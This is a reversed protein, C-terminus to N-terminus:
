ADNNTGSEVYKALKELAMKWGLENDAPAVGPPVGEHVALVETGATTDLLTYTVTMQGQMSPDTTEFELAESVQVDTALKLFRGYYTDTHQSTKGTEGPTEYTLSVRFAGGEIANFEHVCSTMGDPVKWITIARADLLARYVNRRPANVHQRLRTTTTAM